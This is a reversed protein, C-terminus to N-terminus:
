CSFQELLSHYRPEKRLTVLQEHAARKLWEVTWTVIEDTKYTERLLDRLIADRKATKTLADAAILRKMLIRLVDETESDSYISQVFLNSFIMHEFIVAFTENLHLRLDSFWDGIEECRKTKEAPSLENQSWISRVLKLAAADSFRYFNRQIYTHYEQSTKEYLRETVLEATQAWSPLQGILELAFDGNGSAHYVKAKMEIADLRLSEETCGDLICDCMQMLIDNHCRLKDLDTNTKGGVIDWMRCNIMRYDGPYTSIADTILATAESFKGDFHLSEYKQLIDKIDEETRIHQYGMLEDTSVHFVRALPIIMTIDPYSAASEWKSVTAGSVHLFEALQEQTIGKALRLRKINEGINLKM